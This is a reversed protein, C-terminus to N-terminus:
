FHITLNHTDIDASTTKGFQTAWHNLWVAPALKPGVESLQGLLANNLNSDAKIEGSAIVKQDLVTLQGGRILADACILIGALQPRTKVEGLLDIPASLTKLYNKALETDIVAGDAGFLARFFKLRATLTATSSKILAGSDTAFSPDIELLEATNYLAGCIGALDHSVRTMILDSLM